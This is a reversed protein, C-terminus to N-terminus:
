PTVPRATLVAQKREELWSRSVQSRCIQSEQTRARALNASVKQCRLALIGATGRVSWRMCYHGPHSEFGCQIAKSVM